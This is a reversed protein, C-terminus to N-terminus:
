NSQTAPSATTAEDGPILEDALQALHGLHDLAPEGPAVAATGGSGPRVAATVKAAYKVAAALDLGQRANKKYAVAANKYDAAAKRHVERGFIWGAAAGALPALGDFLKVHRGWLNVDNATLFLVVGAVIFAAIFAVAVVTAVVGSWWPVSFPAPEPPTPATTSVGGKSPLSATDGHQKMTM